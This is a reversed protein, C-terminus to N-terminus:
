HTTEEDIGLGSMEFQTEEAAFSADVYEMVEERSAPTFPGNQSFAAGADLQGLADVVAKAPDSTLEAHSVIGKFCQAIAVGDKDKVIREITFIYTADPNTM